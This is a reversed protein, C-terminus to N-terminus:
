FTFKRKIAHLFAPFENEEFVELITILASLASITGRSQSPALTFDVNSCFIKKM